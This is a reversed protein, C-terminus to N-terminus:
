PTITAPSSDSPKSQSQLATQALNLLQLSPPFQKSKKLQALDPTAMPWNLSKGLAQLVDGRDVVGVVAGAPSLVTLYALAFKEIQIIIEALSTSEICTPIQPLPTTLAMVTAQDWQSREITNLLNPSVQGRYRGNSAAFFATPQEDALLLYREAFERLSLDADIVRFDRSLTQDATITLLAEQINSLRDYLAANRIGFWGLLALWLGNGVGLLALSATGLIIASWGLIQGSRAAWHVGKFRNGTLKWVTAKLVQGGDLPLGPLLNFLALVLNIRALNSALVQGPTDAAFLVTLGALLGALALSVAPGAIAVQFAQGPSASEREISAIGGFLFLTIRNVQIGQAQAVLSHGLEHLLVSAFLLVAMAFGVGWAWIGWNPYVQQWDSGNLVTFLAVVVFWSVDLFLPIGFLQGVQWSKGM